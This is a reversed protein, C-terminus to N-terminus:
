GLLGPWYARVAWLAVAGIAGAILDDAMVGAPGSQRDAWGIPGPKTVDLLRFLALALLVGLPSPHALGLLTVWQGAVEDIVVFGPDGAIDAAAIAWFGTLSALVAAAALLKWGLALLGAGLLVAVISAWTGPAPRALGVGGGAAIWWAVRKM